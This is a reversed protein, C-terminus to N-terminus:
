VHARGIERLFDRLRKDMVTELNDLILLVRFTALYDLLEAIPDGGPSNPYGLQQAADEFLGLSTLIANNIRGIEHSTLTTSKASTWVIADFNAKPDDLIDYAAKLAISTKGIGGDGLISIAPWPGLIARKVQRLANTRGFFGTEDFDPVPLNHFPEDIPDVRLRITLGLVYSPDNELHELTMRTSDWHIRSQRLLATAIDSLAPLDNIELPRNHAVRNRIATLEALHPGVIALADKIPGAANRKNSLLIEYADPFDLYTVLLTHTVDGDPGRDREYRERALTEATNPWDVVGDAELALVLDRADTELASILAFCTLRSANFTM